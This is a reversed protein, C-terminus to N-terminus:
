HFFTIFNSKFTLFIHTFGSRKQRKNGTITVDPKFFWNFSKSQSDIVLTKKIEEQEEKSVINDFVRIM